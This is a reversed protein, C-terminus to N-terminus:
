FGASVIVFLHLMILNTKSIDNHLEQDFTKVSRLISEDKQRIYSINTGLTFTNNKVIVDMGATGFITFSSNYNYHIDFPDPSLPAQVSFVNSNYSFGAGLGAKITSNIPIEFGGRLSFSPRSKITIRTQMSKSSAFMFPGVPVLTKPRSVSPLNIEFELCTVTGGWTRVLAGATLSPGSIILSEFPLSGSSYDTIDAISWDNIIYGRRSRKERRWGFVGPSIVIGFEAPLIKAHYGISPMIGVYEEKNLNSSQSWQEPPPLPLLTAYSKYRTTTSMSRYNVAAQIGIAHHSTVSYAASIIGLYSGAQSGESDTSIGWLNHVIDYYLSRRSIQNNDFSVGYNISVAANQIKRIYSLHGVYSNYDSSHPSTHINQVSRSRMQTQASFTYGADLGLANDTPISTILAPSRTADQAGYPCVTRVDGMLFSSAELLSFPVALVVISSLFVITRKVISLDEPINKVIRRKAIVRMFTAM